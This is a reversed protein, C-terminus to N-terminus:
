KNFKDSERSLITYRILGFTHKGGIREEFLDDLLAKFTFLDTESTTEILLSNDFKDEPM